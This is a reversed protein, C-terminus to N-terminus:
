CGGFFVFVLWFDLLFLRQVFSSCIFKLCVNKIQRKKEEFAEEEEESDM